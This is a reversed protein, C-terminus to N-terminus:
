SNCIVSVNGDPTPTSVQFMAQNKRETKLWENTAEIIQVLKPPPFILLGSYVTERQPHLKFVFETVVGFNGGGGRVAFYLDPNETENVILVSGNATVITVQYYNSYVIDKLIIVRFQCVQVLNDIALGHEGSM